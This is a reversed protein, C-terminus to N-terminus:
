EKQGHHIILFIISSCLRIPLGLTPPLFFQTTAFFRSFEFFIGELSMGDTHFMRDATVRGHAFTFFSHNRHAKTASTEEQIGCFLSSVFRNM